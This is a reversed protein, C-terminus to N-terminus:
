AGAGSLHHQSLVHLSITCTSSDPDVASLFDWSEQSKPLGCVSSDFDYQVPGRPAQRRIGSGIAMCFFLNPLSATEPAPDVLKLVMSGCGRAKRFCAQGKGDGGAKPTIMIKFFAGLIDLKPSIITKDKSHLKKADIRWHIWLQGDVHEMWTENMALVPFSKSSPSIDPSTPNALSIPLGDTVGSRLSTANQEHTDHCANTAMPVLTDSGAPPIWRKQLRANANLLQVAVEQLLENMSIELSESAAKDPQYKLAASM